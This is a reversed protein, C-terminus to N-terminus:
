IKWGIGGKGRREARQNEEKKQQQCLQSHQECLSHELHIHTSHMTGKKRLTILFAQFFLIQPTFPSRETRKKWRKERGKRAEVSSLSVRQLGVAPTCSKLCIACEYKHVCVRVCVCQSTHPCLCICAWLNLYLSKCTCINYLMSILYSAMNAMCHTNWFRFVSVMLHFSLLWAYCCFVWCLWGFM